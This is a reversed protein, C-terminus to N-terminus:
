ESTTFSLRYPEASRGQEDKFDLYRGSNMWIVYTSHPHLKVPLVFTRGDRDRVPAGAVEPFSKEGGTVFSWSGDMMPRDYTVAIRDVGAPVVSGHPPFTSVVKPGEEARAAGALAIAAALALAASRSV